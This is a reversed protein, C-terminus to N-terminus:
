RFLYRIGTFIGHTRLPAWTEAVEVGAPVNNLYAKGADSYVRGLDTYRYAIDLTVRETLVIGMGVTAMFALDTKEGSPTVTVKHVALGPFRYTMERLWHHAVGLGGGLYPQFRGLRVGPLGAIDLYLNTLGSLSDASGTVPQEGPVGRFNAQGRYSMDPRYTLAIEARLWPRIQRGVAAELSPFRGFDGYAGIQRGDSGPGTGFYNPPHTAAADEDSFDAALSWEFGAGARLYWEGAAAPTQAFCVLLMVLAWVIRKM